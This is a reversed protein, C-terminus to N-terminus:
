SECGCTKSCLRNKNYIFNPENVMQNIPMMATESKGKEGPNAAGTAGADLAGGVGEDCLLVLLEGTIRCHKIKRWSKNM